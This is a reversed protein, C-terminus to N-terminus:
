MHWIQGLWSQGCTTLRYMDVVDVVGGGGIAVGSITVLL